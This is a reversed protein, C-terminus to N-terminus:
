FKYSIRGTFEHGTVTVFSNDNGLDRYLYRAGLVLHNGFPLWDLGAGAAWGFSPVFNAPIAANHWFGGGTAYLLLSPTMTVGAKALLDAVICECGVTAGSVKVEHYRTVGLEIGGVFWGKQFNVGAHGGWVFGDADVDFPSINVTAWGGHAGIYFGAFSNPAASAQAAYAPPNKTPMDAAIAPSAALAAVFSVISILSRM